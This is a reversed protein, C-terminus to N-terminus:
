CRADDRSRCHSAVLGFRVWGMLGFGAVFVPLTTSAELVWRSQDVVSLFGEHRCGASKPLPGSTRAMALDTPLRPRRCCNFPWYQDLMWIAWRAVWRVFEIQASGMVLSCRRWRRGLGADFCFGNLVASRSGSRPSPLWGDRVTWSWIAWLVMWYPVWRWRGLSFITELADQLDPCDAIWGAFSSEGGLM